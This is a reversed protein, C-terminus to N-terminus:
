NSMMFKKQRKNDFVPMVQREKSHCRKKWLFHHRLAFWLSNTFSYRNEFLSGLKIAASFGHGRNCGERGFMFKKSM